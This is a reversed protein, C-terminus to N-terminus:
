AELACTRPEHSQRSLREGERLVGLWDQTQLGCESLRGEHYRRLENACIAEVWFVDHTPCAWVDAGCNLGHAILGIEHRVAPEGGCLDVGAVRPPDGPFVKEEVCERYWGEAVLLAVASELGLEFALAGPAPWAAAELAPQEVAAIAETHV